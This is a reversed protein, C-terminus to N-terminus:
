LRRKKAWDALQERTQIMALLWNGGHPSYESFDAFGEAAIPKLPVELLKWLAFSYCTWALIDACQLAPVRERCKFAYQGAYFGPKHEEAEAMVAEIEKKAPNRKDKGMWDFVYEFPMQVKQAAAWQDLINLLYGVAWTYHFKQGKRRSDVPLVQDYVDKNIAVSCANVGHKMAIKRVGACVRQKKEESWGVFAGKSNGAVCESTHFSPFGDRNLFGEREALDTMEKDIAVIRRSEIILCSAIAVKQSPDTGSDDIFVTIMALRVKKWRAGLVSLLYHEMSSYFHRGRRISDLKEVNEM